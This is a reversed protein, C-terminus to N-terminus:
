FRVGWVGFGWGGFGLLGFGLDMGRTGFGLGM